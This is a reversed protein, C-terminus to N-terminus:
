GKNLDMSYRFSTQKFGIHSYYAQTAERHLSTTVELQSCGNTKAKNKAFGILATGVGLDRSKEDVVIATIRCLKAFSPFYDFFILSMLGVVQEQHEAVFIADTRTNSVLSKNIDDASKEYGLQQLLLSVANYDKPNIERIEINCM